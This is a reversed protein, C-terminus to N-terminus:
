NSDSTYIVRGLNDTINFEDLYHTDTVGKCHAALNELQIPNSLLQNALENNIIFSLVIKM